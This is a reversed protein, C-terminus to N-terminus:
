TVTMHDNIAAPLARPEPSSDTTKDMELEGPTRTMPYSREVTPRTQSCLLQQSEGVLRQHHANFLAPHSLSSPHSM